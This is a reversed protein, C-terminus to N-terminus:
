YKCGYIRRQLEELLSTSNTNGKKKKFAMKSSGFPGCVM